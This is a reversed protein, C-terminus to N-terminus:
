FRKAIRLSNRSSPVQGPRRHNWVVETSVVPLKMFLATLNREASHSICSSPLPIRRLAFSLAFTSSEDEATNCTALAPFLFIPLPLPPVDGTRRTDEIVDDGIVFSIPRLATVV